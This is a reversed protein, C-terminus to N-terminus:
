RDTGDGLRSGRFVVWERGNTVCALEANKEGCYRIAQAIGEQLSKSQKLAAGNLKYASGPSRLELDFSRAEKKAEVVLRARDDISFKYDLYGSLTHEEANISSTPWGLVDIFIRDIIKLRVDAETSVDDLDSEYLPLNELFKEEAADVPSM